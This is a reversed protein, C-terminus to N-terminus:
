AAWVTHTIHKFYVISINSEPQYLYYNINDDKIDLVDCICM